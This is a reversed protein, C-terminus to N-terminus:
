ARMGKDINGEGRVCPRASAGVPRRRCGSMSEMFFGHFVHKHEGTRFPASGRVSCPTGGYPVCREGTRFVQRNRHEGTRFVGRDASRTM